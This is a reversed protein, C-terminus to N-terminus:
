IYKLWILIAEGLKALYSDHHIQLNEGIEKMCERPTNKELKIKDIEEWFIENYKIGQSEKVLNVFPDSARSHKILPHGCAILLNLHDCIKKFIIGFWIDDFRRFVFKEGMLAFLSLVAVEKKFAFNMGCLPFYQGIPLIRDINCPPRFDKSDKTSLTQIADYDPVGTWLGISAVVNNLKGLNRYPIGRTRMGLISETWAPSSEIKSIHQLINEGEEPYCDDDLTFIYDAKLRNAIIFGYSRIASDKRSIIWSDERLDDDIEKWSYHHQLDLKFTKEKNDEIVILNQLLDSQHPKWKEIFKMLCDERVSPVVLCNM